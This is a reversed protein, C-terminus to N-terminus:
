CEAFDPVAFSVFLVFSPLLNSETAKKRKEHGNATKRKQSIASHQISLAAKFHGAM